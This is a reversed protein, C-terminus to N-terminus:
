RASAGEASSGSFTLTMVGGRLHRIARRAKFAVSKKRRPNGGFPQELVEPWPQAAIRRWLSYEPKTRTELPAALMTTLLARCAFPVLCDRWVIDYELLWSPVWTGARQEWYLLDRVDFGGADGVDTLWDQM